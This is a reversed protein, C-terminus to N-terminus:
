LGKYRPRSLPSEHNGDLFRSLHCQNLWTSVPECATARTSILLATIDPLATVSQCPAVLARDGWLRQDLISGLASSPVVACHHDVGGHRTCGSGCLAEM